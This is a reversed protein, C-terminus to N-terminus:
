DEFAIQTWVKNGTKCEELPNRKGLVPIIKGMKKMGQESSINLILKTRLKNDEETKDENTKEAQMHAMHVHKEPM